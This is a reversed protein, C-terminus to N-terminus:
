KIAAMISQMPCLMFRQVVEDLAAVSLELSMPAFTGRRLPKRAGGMGASQCCAWVLPGSNTQCRSRSYAATCAATGASRPRATQRRCPAYEFSLAGGRRRRRGRRLAGARWMARRRVRESTEEDIGSGNSPWADCYACMARQFLLVVSSAHPATVAQLLSNCARLIGM